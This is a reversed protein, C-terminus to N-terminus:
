KGTTGDLAERLLDTHGAHRATEELLHLLVWRLSFEQGSRRPRLSCQDLGAAAGVAQRSHQCAQRYRDPLQEPELEAAAHFERDPDTDWDVSAWPEREALGLFRVQMWDDEVLALHSLPGGLTLTSPSHTQALQERTLGETKQLVTERQYDLYQVLLGLEDGAPAPDSRM